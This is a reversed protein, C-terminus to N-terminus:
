HHNHAHMYPTCAHMDKETERKKSPATNPVITVSSNTPTGQTLITSPKLFPKPVNKYAGQM